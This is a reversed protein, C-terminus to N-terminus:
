MVRRLHQDWDLYVVQELDCALGRYNNRPPPDYPTLGTMNSVNGTLIQGFGKEFGYVLYVPMHMLTAFTQLELLKRHKLMLGGYQKIQEPTQKRTKIELALKIEGHQALFYDVFAKKPSKVAQSHEPFHPLLREIVLTEAQEDTHTELTPM